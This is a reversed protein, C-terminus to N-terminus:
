DLEADPFAERLRRQYAQRRKLVGHAKNMLKERYLRKYRYQWKGSLAVRDKLVKNLHQPVYHERCRHWYGVGLQNYAWRQGPEGNEGTELLNVARDRENVVEVLNEM